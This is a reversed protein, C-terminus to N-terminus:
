TQREWWARLAGIEDLAAGPLKAYVGDPRALLDDHRGTEVIRGRELVIIMDAQRVTSLRHAIVIVTRNTILNALAKQM